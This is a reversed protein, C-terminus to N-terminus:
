FNAAYSNTSVSTFLTKVARTFQWLPWITLSLSQWTSDSATLGRNHRSASPNCRRPAQLVRPKGRSLKEDKWRALGRRIAQSDVQLADCVARFSFPEYEEDSFIWSQAEAFEQRRASQRAEFKTQFCRLADVLIAVMLRRLAEGDSVRHRPVYFQAPLIAYPELAEGGDLPGRLDDLSLMNTM